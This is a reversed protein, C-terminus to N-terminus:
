VETVVTLSLCPCFDLGVSHCPATGQGTIKTRSSLLLSAQILPVAKRGTKMPRMEGSLHSVRAKCGDAQAGVRARTDVSSHSSPFGEAQVTGKWM